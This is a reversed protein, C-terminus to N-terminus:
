AVVRNVLLEALGEAVVDMGLCEGCLERDNRWYYPKATRCDACRPGARLESGVSELADATRIAAEVVQSKSVRQGRKASLEGALDTLMQYAVPRLRVTTGHNQGKAM